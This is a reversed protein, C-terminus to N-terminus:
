GTSRRPRAASSGRGAPTSSRPSAPWRGNERPGARTRAGGAQRLPQRWRRRHLDSPNSPSAPAAPSGTRSASATRRGPAPSSARSTRGTTGSCCRWGRSPSRAAADDGAPQRLWDFFSDEGGTAFPDPWRRGEPDVQRLARRSIEPVPVGNDFRGYQYPFSRSRRRGRPASASATSGSCRRPRRPPRRLHLPEPVELDAGAAPLRLRQLPLLAAARRRGALRRRRRARADRHPLNWYAVNYGPDRLITSTPGPLRARLGDLAPRRVARARGRAPVRPLPPPAVLRPLPPHARQLGLGLFGLNYIGSLLIERENPM